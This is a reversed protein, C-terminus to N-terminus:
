LIDRLKRIDSIYISKLERNYIISAPHYMPFLNFEQDLISVTKFEGHVSGINLNFDGMIAKLPVNGLTVIYIPNIVKVEKILYERNEIIEDRTAPRNKTRGTKLNIESLRYKIANTIYVSDRKINSISLFEDLNKGATGVFPRSLKVEEGGPAEGILIMKSDINGEGLVIENGQFDNRYNDYLTKLMEHKNM